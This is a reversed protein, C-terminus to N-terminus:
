FCLMPSSEGTECKISSKPPTPCETDPLLEDRIILNPIKSTSRLAPSSRRLPSLTLNCSCGNYTRVANSSCTREIQLVTWSPKRRSQGYRRVLVCDKVGLQIRQITVDNKHLFKSLVIRRAHITTSLAM